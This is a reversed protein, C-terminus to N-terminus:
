GKKLKELMDATNTHHISRLYEQCATVGANFDGDIAAATSFRENIEKRIEKRDQSATEIEWDSIECDRGCGYMCRKNRACSNLKTCGYPWPNDNVAM